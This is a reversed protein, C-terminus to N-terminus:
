SWYAPATFFNMGDTLSYILENQVLIDGGQAVEYLDVEAARDSALLSKLERGTMTRFPVEYEQNDIRVMVGVVGEVGM